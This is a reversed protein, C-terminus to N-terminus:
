VPQQLVASSPARAEIGDYRREEAIMLKLAPDVIARAEEPDIDEALDM